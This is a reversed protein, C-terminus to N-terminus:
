KFLTTKGFFNEDPFHTERWKSDYKDNYKSYSWAKEYYSGKSMHFRESFNYNAYYLAFFTLAESFENYDDLIYLKHTYKYDKTRLYTEILAIQKEGEYISVYNFDGKSLCYCHFIDGSDLSIVYFSKFFGNESYFISGYLSDNKYLHFKRTIKVGGWLWKFPLYNTWSSPSYVGNITTEDNFLTIDERQNYSGLKAQFYFNESEIEYTQKTNSETQTIKIIV